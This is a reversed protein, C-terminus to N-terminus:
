CHLASSTTSSTETSGAQVDGTSGCKELAGQHCYNSCLTQRLLRPPCTSSGLTQRLLRPHTLQLCPTALTSPLATGAARCGGHWCLRSTHCVPLASKEHLSRVVPHTPASPLDTVSDKM